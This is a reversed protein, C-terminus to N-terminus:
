RRSTRQRRLAENRLARLTSAVDSLLLSRVWQRPLTLGTEVDAEYFLRTGNAIPHFVWTGSLARLDGSAREFRISRHTVSESRIVCRLQPILWNLRVRHERLDWNGRRGTKLVRCSELRALFQPARDCDVLINWLFEPRVPIDIAAKIIGGSGSRAVTVDVLVMGSSLNSRQKRTLDFQPKASAGSVLIAVSVLLGAFSTVRRRLTSVLQSSM